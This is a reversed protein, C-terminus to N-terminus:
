KKTAKKHRGKVPPQKKEVETNKEEEKEEKTTEEILDSTENMIDNFSKFWESYWDQIKSQYLKLVKAFDLIDINKIDIKMDELIAPCLVSIISICEIMQISRLSSITRTGLLDSWFGKSIQIKKNEIEIYEGVTPFEIEYERGEFEFFLKRSLEKTM